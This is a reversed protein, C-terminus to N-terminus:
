HQISVSKEDCLYSATKMNHKHVVNLEYSWYYKPGIEFNQRHAATFLEAKQKSGKNSLPFLVDYDAAFM